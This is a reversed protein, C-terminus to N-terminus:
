LAVLEAVVEVGDYAAARVPGEWGEPGGEEAVEGAGDEGYDEAEGVWGEFGEAVVREVDHSEDYAM